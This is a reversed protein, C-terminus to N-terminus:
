CGTRSALTQGVDRVVGGGVGSTGSTITVFDAPVNPTVSWACGPQTTVAVTQSGGMWAVAARPPSIAYTCAIRFVLGQGPGGLSATGGDRGADGNARLASRWRSQPVHAADHVDREARHPLDHRVRGRGRTTGFVSEGSIGGLYPRAATPDAPSTTSRPSRGQPTLKFVTGLNRAGM